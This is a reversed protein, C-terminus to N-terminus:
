KEITYKRLFAIKRDRTEHAYKTNQGEYGHVLVAESVDFTCLEHPIKLENLKKDFAYAQKTFTDTNGDCFFVPPYNPSVNELLSSESIQENGLDGRRPDCYCLKSIFFNFSTMFSLKGFDKGHLVACNLDVAKICSHPITPAIGTKQAYAADCQINVFQGAVGGGSSGGALIVSDMDLGYESGHKRLHAVCRSLQIVPVPYTYDPAKAHNVMVINFGADLYSFLLKSMDSTGSFPDGFTKSATIYGGGFVYIYTPRKVSMDANAIYIDCYSEPYETDYQIDNIYLHRGGVIKRDPPNEPEFSNGFGYKKQISRATYAGFSWLLNGYLRKILGKNPEFNM